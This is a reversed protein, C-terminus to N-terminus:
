DRAYRYVGRMYPRFDAIKSIASGLRNMSHLFHRSDVAIGVHKENDFEFTLLDNPQIQAVKKFLRAVGAINDKYDPLTIGLQESYVLLVLGYCDCGARDRGNDKYPIGIYQTM